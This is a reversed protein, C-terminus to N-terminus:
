IYRAATWDSGMKVLLDTADFIPHVRELTEQWVIWYPAELWESFGFGYEEIIDAVSMLSWGRGIDSSRGRDASEILIKAAIPQLHPTEIPEPAAAPPPAIGPFAIITATLFTDPM